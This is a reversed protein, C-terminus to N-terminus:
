NITFIAQASLTLQKLESGDNFFGTSYYGLLRLGINRTIHAGGGFVIGTNTSKMTKNTLAYNYEVGTDFAPQFPQTTVGNNNKAETARRITQRKEGGLLNEISIGAEAYLRNGFRVSLPIALYSAKFTENVQTMDNYPVMRNELMFDHKFSKQQNFAGIGISLWSMAGSKDYFPSFRIQAGYQLFTARPNIAGNVYIENTGTQYYQTQYQLLQGSTRMFAPGIFVDANLMKNMKSKQHNSKPNKGNISTLDDLTYYNAAKSVTALLLLTLLPKFFLKISHM